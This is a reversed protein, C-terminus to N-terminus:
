RGSCSVGSYLRIWSERDLMGPMEATARQVYEGSLLLLQPLPTQISPCGAGPGLSWLEAERSRTVAPYKPTM